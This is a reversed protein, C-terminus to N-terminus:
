NLSSPVVASNIPAQAFRSAQQKQKLYVGAIAHIGERVAKRIALRQAPAVTYRNLDTPRQDTVVYVRKVRNLVYRLLRQRESPLSFLEAYPYSQCTALIAESEELAIQETLNVVQTEPQESLLESLTSCPKGVPKNSM